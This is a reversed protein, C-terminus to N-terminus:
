SKDHDDEEKGFLKKLKAQATLRCIEALMRAMDETMPMSDREGYESEPDVEIPMLLADGVIHGYAYLLSAVYNLPKMKCLAEEDVHIAIDDEIPLSALVIEFYGGVEHQIDKVFTAENERSIPVVLIDGATTIKVAYGKKM